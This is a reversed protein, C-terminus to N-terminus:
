SFLLSSLKRRASLTAEDTMGWAEFFKLLQARAGDDNWTRDARVIALLNDAAQMREGRANQVMALDFRAQHDNPNAALRREFEAPNGLAAAEAALTMKARLAALAPADKKDEPTKALVAEAGQSDGAEFLIEGLGAIAEITEPSQELIADYIDAATQTDGAERAEAAAALAETVQPAGGGGKGGVKQIFQTIQSEPIAGMFGDVPQGDKFAIVAPISQIGLQGAVSPHDDINMKVLRVKGGAAKVAKELQPTLQKCPGCWPAWFDVLVPQRRSEQIVDAAFTATTTDKVLDAAAPAEGLSVKGRDAGGYQVSQAYQGANGGFSGSFPNNDSM